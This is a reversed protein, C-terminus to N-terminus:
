STKSFQISKLKNTVGDLIVKISVDGKTFALNIVGVGTSSFKDKSINKSIPKGYKRELDKENADKHIHNDFFYNINNKSTSDFSIKIADVIKSQKEMVVSLVGYYDPPVGGYEFFVFDNNSGIVRGLDGVGKLTLFDGVISINLGVLSEFNYDKLNKDLLKKNSVLTHLPTDPYVHQKDVNNIHKSLVTFFDKGRQHKLQLKKCELVRLFKDTSQDKRYAGCVSILWEDLEPIYGTLHKWVYDRELHYIDNSSTSEMIELLSKPAGVFSLYENVNNSIMKSIKIGEEMSLKQLLTHDLFTRHVGLIDGGRDVGALYILVCASDCTCNEENIYYVDNCNNKKDIKIGTITALKLERILKGIKIATMVDGGNSAIYVGTLSVGGELLRNIFNTYDSKIIEGDIVIWHSRENVLYNTIISANVSNTLFLSLFLTIIFGRLFM